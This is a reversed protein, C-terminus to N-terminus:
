SFRSCPRILLVLLCQSLFSGFFFLPCVARSLRSINSVSLRSINTSIISLRYVSRPPTVSQPPRPPHSLKSGCSTFPFLTYRPLIPELWSKCFFPPPLFVTCLSLLIHHLVWSERRCVCVCACVCLWACACVCACVCGCSACVCARACVCTQM